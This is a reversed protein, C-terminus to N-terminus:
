EGREDRDTRGASSRLAQALGDLVGGAVDAARAGAERMLDLSALTSERLAEPLGAALARMAADVDTGLRTGNRRAHEVLDALAGAGADRGAVAARELADLMMAELTGLDRLARRLEAESYAGGRASAEEIALKASEASHGLAAQLGELADAVAERGATSRGAAGARMGEGVAQVVRRMREFDLRGGSLAERTIREVEARTDEGEGFAGRVEDAVEDPTPERNPDDSTM